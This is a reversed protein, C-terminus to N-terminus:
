VALELRYASLQGDETAATASGRLLSDIMSIYVISGALVGNGVQQYRHNWASVPAVRHRSSATTPDGHEGARTIM